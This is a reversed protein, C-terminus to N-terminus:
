ENSEGETENGNSDEQEIIEENNSANLIEKRGEGDLLYKTTSVRMNRDRLKQLLVEDDNILYIDGKVDEAIHYGFSTINRIAVPIIKISGQSLEDYSPMRNADLAKKNVKYAQIKM